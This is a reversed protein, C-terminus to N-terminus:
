NNVLQTSIVFSNIKLQIRYIGPMYGILSVENSYSGSIKHTTEIISINTNNIDQFSLIINAEYPLKYTITVTSKHVPNPYCALKVSDILESYGINDTNITNMNDTNNIFGQTIYARIYNYMNLNDSILKSEIFLAIPLETTNATFYYADIKDILNLIPSTNIQYNNKLRVKYCNANQFNGNTLHLNGNAIKKVSYQGTKYADIGGYIISKGQLTESVSDGIQIIKNSRIFKNCFNIDIISESESNKIEKIGVFNWDNLLIEDKIKYYLSDHYYPDASAPLEKIVQAKIQIIFSICLLLVSYFRKTM